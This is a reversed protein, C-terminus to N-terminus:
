GRYGTGPIRRTFESCLHTELVEETVPVSWYDAKGKVSLYQAKADRHCRIGTLGHGGPSYDSYLCTVCSRIRMKEPLEAELRLLGDEFWDDAVEVLTKGCRLSLTLNRPARTNMRAEATLDLVFDITSEVPEFATEITCPLSGGVVCETLGFNNVVLGAKSAQDPSDPDLGEFDYGTFRVGRISTSIEFSSGFGPPLGHTRPDVRWLIPESDAGPSRLFHGPFEFSEM